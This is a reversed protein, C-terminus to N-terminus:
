RKNKSKVVSKEDKRWQTLGHIFLVLGTVLGIITFTIKIRKNKADNKLKIVKQNLTVTDYNNTILDVIKYCMAIIISLGLITIFKNASDTPIKLNLM